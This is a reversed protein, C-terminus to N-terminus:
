TCKLILFSYIPLSHYTRACVSGQRGFKNLFLLIKRNLSLDLARQRKTQEQILQVIVHILKLVNLQHLIRRSCRAQLRSHETPRDLCSRHSGRVQLASQNRFSLIQRPRFARRLNISPM